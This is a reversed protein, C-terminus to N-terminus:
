TPTIGHISITIQQRELRALDKSFAAVEDRLAQFLMEMEAATIAEDLGDVNLVGCTHANGSVQLHLPFAIIWRLRKTILSVQEQTLQFEEDGVVGLGHLHVLQWNPQASERRAGFPINMSFVRGTLGENPRFKIGRENKDHMGHHLGKSIYLGCVEGYRAESVDPFFVNARVRDSQAAVSPSRAQLLAAYRAQAQARIGQLRRGLEQLRDEPLPLKLTVRTWPAPDNTPVASKCADLRASISGAVNPEAKPRVLVMAFVIAAVAVAFSGFAWGTQSQYLLLVGFVLGLIGVILTMQLVGIHQVPARQLAAKQTEGLLDGLARQDIPLPSVAKTDDPM